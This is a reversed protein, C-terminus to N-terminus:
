DLNDWVLKIEYLGSCIGNVVGSVAKLRLGETFVV